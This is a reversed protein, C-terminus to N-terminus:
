EELSAAVPEPMQAMGSRDVLAWLGRDKVRWVVSQICAVDVIQAPKLTDGKSFRTGFRNTEACVEIPAIVALLCTHPQSSGALSRCALPLTLILFRLVRGYFTRKVLKV